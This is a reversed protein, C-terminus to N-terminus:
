HDHGLVGEKQLMMKAKELVSFGTESVELSKRTMVHRELSKGRALATDIDTDDFWIGGEMRNLSDDVRYYGNGSLSGDFRTWSFRFLNGELSGWCCGPRRGEYALVVSGDIMQLYCDDHSRFEIENWTGCLETAEIRIQKPLSGTVVKRLEAVTSTLDYNQRRIEEIQRELNGQYAKEVTEDRVHKGFRFSTADMYERVPSDPQTPNNLLEKIFAELREALQKVGRPTFRYIITRYPTLDFPIDEARQALLITKNSLAHRVGLEYFVNPNRGTMEAIVIDASALHGVIDSIINGPRSIEDARVCEMDSNLGTVLPKIHDFYLETWQRHGDPDKLEDGFPMVIFCLKGTM